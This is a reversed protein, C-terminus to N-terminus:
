RIPEKCGAINMIRKNKVIIAVKGKEYDEVTCVYTKEKLWNYTYICDCMPIFIGQGGKDRWLKMNSDFVIEKQYETNKVVKERYKEKNEIPKCNDKYSDGDAGSKLAGLFIWFVIFLVIGYIILKIATFFLPIINEVILLAIPVLIFCYTDTKHLELLSEFSESFYMTVFTVIYFVIFLIFLWIIVDDFHWSMNIFFEYIPYFIFEYQSYNDLLYILSFDLVISCLAIVACIICAIKLWKFKYQDEMVILCSMYVIHLVLNTFTIWSFSVINVTGYTFVSETTSFGNSVWAIQTSFGGKIIFSILAYLFGLTSLVFMIIPVIGIFYTFAIKLYSIILLLINKTKTSLNDM